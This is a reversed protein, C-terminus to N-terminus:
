DMTLIFLIISAIIALAMILYSTKSVYSPKSFLVDEFTILYRYLRKDLIGKSKIIYINNFYEKYDKYEIIDSLCALMYIDVMDSEKLYNIDKDINIHNFNDIDYYSESRFKEVTTSNNLLLEGLSTGHFFDLENLSHNIIFLEYSFKHIDVLMNYEICALHNCRENLTIYSNDSCQEDITDIFDYIISDFDIEIKNENQYDEHMKHLYDKFLKNIERIYFSEQSKSIMEMNLEKKNSLLDLFEMRKEKSYSVFELTDM